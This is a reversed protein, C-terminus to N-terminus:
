RFRRGAGLFIFFCPRRFRGSDLAAVAAVVLSAEGVRFTDVLMTFLVMDPLKCMAVHGM